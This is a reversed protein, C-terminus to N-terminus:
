IHFTHSWSNEQDRNTDNFYSTPLHLPVYEHCSSGALTPACTLEYYFRVHGYKLYCIQWNSLGSRLRGQCRHLLDDHWVDSDWIEVVYKDNGNLTVAGFNLNESWRPNNNGGIVRTRMDQDQFLFKVYADTSSFHDGWLGSGSDVHFKLHARGRETGCCKNNILGNPICMCTCKEVWNNFNKQPCSQHCDRRLARRKIYSVTAQKLFNRRPDTKNLLSYLPLLSYSVLGPTRETSDLWENLHDLDRSDSFLMKKHGGVVEMHQTTYLEYFSSKSKGFWLKACESHFSFSGWLGIRKLKTELDLCHKIKEATFGMLTMGCTKLALLYRARGGLYVLSIYHTGYINIFHQYEEPDHHPPLKGIAQVFHFSLLPNTQLGLSYHECEIENRLFSYRDERTKQYAFIAMNSHSGAFAVQAKSFGLDEEMFDKVMEMRWDNKVEKAIANAVDIDLEDVFNNAKRRCNERQRWDVGVLPLRQLEGGMKHNRCLTCTGNPGQWKSIDVVYAGKKELTTIDVGEGIFNHGPVFNVNKKCDNGHHTECESNHLPLSFHFSAFYVMFFLHLKPM